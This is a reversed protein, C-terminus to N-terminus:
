TQSLKRPVALLEYAEHILTDLQADFTARTPNVIGIWHQKAYACRV